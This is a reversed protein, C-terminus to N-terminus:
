IMGPVPHNSLVLPVVAALTAVSGAVRRYRRYCRSPPSVSDTVAALPSRAIRASLGAAFGKRGASKGCVGHIRILWRRIHADAVSFRADCGGASRSKNFKATEPPM